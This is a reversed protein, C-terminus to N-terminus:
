NKWTLQGDIIIGNALTQLFAGTPEQIPVIQIKRRLKKEFTELKPYTEKNTVVAIDIDSTAHDEGRAYSGFLIIAEPINYYDKIKAIIKSDYLKRLNDLIKRRTFEETKKATVTTVARGKKVSLLGEKRLNEIEKLVTNPHLKTKRALERPYSVLDPNNFYQQLVRSM